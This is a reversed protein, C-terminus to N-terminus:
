QSATELRLRSSRSWLLTVLVVGIALYSAFRAVVAGSESLPWIMLLYVAAGIVPRSRFGPIFCVVLAIWYQSWVLPTLTLVSAAAAMPWGERQIRERSRAVLALGAIYVAIALWPPLWPGVLSQNWPYTQYFAANSPLAEGIWTRLAEWGGLFPLSFLTLLTATLAVPYLDRWPSKGGPLFLALPAVWPRWAVLAGLLILGLARRGTRDFHYVAALGLGVIAAGQLWFLDSRAGMSLLAAGFVGALAMREGVSRGSFVTFWGLAMLAAFEIVYAALEAGVPGAANLWALAVAIAFPSHAVWHAGTQQGDVRLEQYPVIDDQALQAGVLDRGFDTYEIEYGPGIVFSVLISVVGIVLLGASVPTGM